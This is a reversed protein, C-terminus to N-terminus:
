LQPILAGRLGFGKNMKLGKFNFNMEKKTDLVSNNVQFKKSSQGVARSRCVLTIAVSVSERKVASHTQAACRWHM